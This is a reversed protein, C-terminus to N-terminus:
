IGEKQLNFNITFVYRGLEDKGLFNPGNTCQILQCYEEGITEHGRNHLVSIIQWALENGTAYAKNRIRIQFSAETYVDEKQFMTSFTAGTDYITVCDDPESPEWGIFLNEAFDLDLASENTLIEKVVESIM